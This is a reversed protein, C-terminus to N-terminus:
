GRSRKLTRASRSTGHGTSLKEQRKNYSTDNRIGIEKDNFWESVLKCQKPRKMTTSRNLTMDNIWISWPVIIQKPPIILKPEDRINNPYWILSQAANCHPPSLASLPLKKNDDELIIPQEQQIDDIHKLRKGIPQYPDFTIHLTYYWRITNLIYVEDQEVNFLQHNLSNFKSHKGHKIAILWVWFTQKRIIDTLQIGGYYPLEWAVTPYFHDDYTLTIIQDKVIGQDLDYKSNILNYFPYQIGDSDNVMKHRGSKLPHFEWLTSGYNGYCNELYLQDCAQVLGISWYEKAICENISLEVQCHFNQSKYKLLNTMEIIETTTKTDYYAHISLVHIHDLSLNSM